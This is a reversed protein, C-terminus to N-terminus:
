EFWADIRAKERKFWAVQVSVIIVHWGDNKKAIRGDMISTKGDVGCCKKFKGFTM